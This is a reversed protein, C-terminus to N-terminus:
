HIDQFPKHFCHTPYREGLQLLLEKVASDDRPNAKYAHVSRCQKLAACSRRLSLSYVKYMFTILERKGATELAKKYYVNKPAENKLNLDSFMQKLRTNKAELNRLRRIDFAKM